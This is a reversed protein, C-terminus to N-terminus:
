SLPRPRLRLRQSRSSTLLPPTILRTSSRSQPPAAASRTQPFTCCLLGATLAPPATTSRHCIASRVTLSQPAPTLQVGTQGSYTLNTTGDTTAQFDASVSVVDAVPSSIAYTVLDSQMLIARNGITGAEMAVTTLPSTANGLLAELEEDSGDTDASWLGTMGLTASQLGPLFSRSSAGFATVDATEVSFTSDAANFYDSLDFEDVYTKTGKGHIFTPM